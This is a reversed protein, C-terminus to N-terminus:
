SEVLEIDGLTRTGGRGDAKATSMDSPAPTTMRKRLITLVTESSLRCDTGYGSEKDITAFSNPKGQFLPLSVKGPIEGMRWVIRLKM